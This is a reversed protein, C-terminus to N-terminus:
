GIIIRAVVAIGVLLTIGLIILQLYDIAGKGTDANLKAESNATAVAESIASANMDAVSHAFDQAQTYVFLGDRVIQNKLEKQLDQLTRITTGTSGETIGFIADIERLRERREYKLNEIQSDINSIENEIIDVEHCEDDSIIDEKVMPLPLRQKIEDWAEKTYIEEILKEDMDNVVLTDILEENVSIGHKECISHFDQVARMQNPELSIPCKTYYHAVPIDNYREISRPHPEWHTGNAFPLFALYNRRDGAKKLVSIVMERTPTHVFVIPIKRISAIFFHRAYPTKLVMASFFTTLIFLFLIGIAVILLFWSPLAIHAPFSPLVSMTDFGIM